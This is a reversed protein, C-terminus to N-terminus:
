RFCYLLAFGAMSRVVIFKGTVEIRGPKNSLVLGGDPMQGFDSQAGMSVFCKFFPLNKTESLLDELGHPRFLGELSERASKATAVPEIQTSDDFFEITIIRLIKSAIMGFDKSFKLFAYVEATQGFKLSRPVFLEPRGTSPSLVALCLLLPPGPAFPAAKVSDQPRRSQRSDRHDVVPGDM